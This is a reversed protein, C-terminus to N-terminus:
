AMLIRRVVDVVADMHHFLYWMPVGLLAGGIVVLSAGTASPLMSEARIERNLARFLARRVQGSDDTGRDAFELTVNRLWPLVSMNIKVDVSSIFVEDEGAEFDWGLQRCARGLFSRCRGADINYVVWGTNRGPLMVFFIGGLMIVVGCALWLRGLEVLFVVPYIMVPFLAIALLLFDTRINILCPHPRSNVLGLGLFYIALPGLGVALHLVFIVEDLSSLKFV